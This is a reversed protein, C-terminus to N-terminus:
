IIKTYGEAMKGYIESLKRDKKPVIKIILVIKIIVPSIIQFMEFTMTIRFINRGTKYEKCCCNVFPGNDKM